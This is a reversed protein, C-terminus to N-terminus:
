FRNRPCNKQISSNSCLWLLKNDKFCFKRLYDPHAQDKKTKTLLLFCSGLKFMTTTTLLGVYSFLVFYFQCVKSYDITRQISKHPGPLLVLGVCLILPNLHITQLQMALIYPFWVKQRLLEKWCTVTSRAFSGSSM